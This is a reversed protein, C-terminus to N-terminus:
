NCGSGRRCWVLMNGNTDVNRQLDQRAELSNAAEGKETDCPLREGDMELWSVNRPDTCGCRMCRYTAYLDDRKELRHKGGERTKQVLQWSAKEETNRMETKGNKSWCMFIRRMGDSRFSNCNYNYMIEFVLESPLKSHFFVSTIFEFLIGSLIQVIVTERDESREIKEDIKM